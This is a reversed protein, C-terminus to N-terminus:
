RLYNKPGMATDSKIRKTPERYTSYWWDKKKMEVRHYYKDNNFSFKLIVEKPLRLAHSLDDVNELIPLSLLQQTYKGQHANM